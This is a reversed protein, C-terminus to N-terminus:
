VGEKLSVRGDAHRKLHVNLYGGIGTARWATAQGCGASKCLADVLQGLRVKRKGLCAKLHDLTIIQWENPELEPKEQALGMEAQKKLLLTRNVSTEIWQLPTLSKFHDGRNDFNLNRAFEYLEVLSKEHNTLLQIARPIHANLLIKM